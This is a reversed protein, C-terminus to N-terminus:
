YTKTKNYKPPKGGHQEQYRQVYDYELEEANERYMPGRIIRLHTFKKGSRAHEEVRDRPGNSIGYCVITNEDKLEYLYTDRKKKM